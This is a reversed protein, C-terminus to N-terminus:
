AAPQVHDHNGEHILRLGLRAALADRHATVGPPPVGNADYVVDAATWILHASEAVGGVAANHKPTRGWSTVSAATAACYAILASAFDHPTM